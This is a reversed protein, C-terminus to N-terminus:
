VGALANCKQTADGSGFMEHPGVEAILEGGLYEHFVIKGTDLLIVGQGPLHVATLLGVVTVIDPSGDPKLTRIEVAPGPAGFSGGPGSFTVRFAPAVTPLSYTPAQWIWAPHVTQGVRYPAVLCLWCEPPIHSSAPSSGAPLAEVLGPM